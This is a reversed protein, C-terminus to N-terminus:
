APNREELGFNVADLLADLLHQECFWWRCNEITIRYDPDARCVQCPCGNERSEQGLKLLSFYM